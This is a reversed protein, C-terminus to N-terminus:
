RDKQFEAFWNQVVVIGQSREEGPNEAQIMVFRGDPAVAYKENRMLVGEPRSFLERPTGLKVSPTTKVTVVMMRKDAEVYYLESGDSNWRPQVGGNVSVQWKGGGDPFAMLYIEDDGFEGSEYALYRGDPSLRPNDEDAPTQLFVSAKASGDAPQWWIDDEYADGDQVFILYRGDASFVPHKGAGRETAEGTGNSAKEGLQNVANSYVVREGDASWTSEWTDSQGFTLRTATGRLVDHIWIDRNENERSSVAIRGGDPAISPMLQSSQPQGITDEVEGQRNVWVLQTRVLVSGPM